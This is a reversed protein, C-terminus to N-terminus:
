IMFVKTSGVFFMSVVVLACWFVASYAVAVAASSLALMFSDWRTPNPIVSYLYWFAAAWCIAAYTVLGLMAGIEPASLAVFCGTPFAAVFVGAVPSVLFLIASRKERRRARATLLARGDAIDGGCEPCVKAGVVGTLDYDCTPCLIWQESKGPKTSELPTDV